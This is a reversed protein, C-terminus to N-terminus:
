AATKRRQGLQPLSATLQSHLSWRRRGERTHETTLGWTIAASGRELRWSQGPWIHPKATARGQQGVPAQHPPFSPSTFGTRGALKPCTMPFLLSGSALPGSSSGWIRSPSPHGIGRLPMPFESSLNLPQRGKAHPLSLRLVLIKPVTSHYTAPTSLNPEQGQPHNPM